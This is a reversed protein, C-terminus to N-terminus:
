VDFAFEVIQSHQSTLIMMKPNGNEGADVGYLTSFHDKRIKQFFAKWIPCEVKQLQVLCGGKPMAQTSNVRIDLTKSQRRANREGGPPFNGPVSAQIINM